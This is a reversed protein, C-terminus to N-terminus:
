TSRSCDFLTYHEISIDEDCFQKNFNKCFKDIKHDQNPVLLWYYHEAYILLLEYGNQKATILIEEFVIDYVQDQVKYYHGIIEKHLEYHEFLPKAKQRIKTQLALSDIAYEHFIACREIQNEQFETRDIKMIYARFRGGFKEAALWNLFAEFRKRFKKKPIERQKLEPFWDQLLKFIKNDDM